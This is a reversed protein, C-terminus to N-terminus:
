EVIAMEGAQLVEKTGAGGDIESIFAIVECNEPIWWGEEDPFTFEFTREVIQNTAMSSPLNDGLTNTLVTRFVHNHEYNPDKTGNNDQYDIIHSETIYVTLNFDGELDNQPDLSVKSVLKRDSESYTNAIDIHLLAFKEDPSEFPEGIRDGWPSLISLLLFEEEDFHKRNVSISPKGLYDGLYAEIEEAEDTLFNFKSNAYPAGLFPTHLAVVIMNEKYISKLAVLEDSGSPCNPCQVGTLEEVLVVRDSEIEPPDPVVPPIEECASISFLVALIIFIYFRM